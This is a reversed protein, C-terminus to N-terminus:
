QWLTVERVATRSLLPGSAGLRRVVPHDPEILALARAAEAALYPDEDDVALDALRPVAARSRLAALIRAALVQRDSLRHNLARVLQDEYSRLDDEVPAGCSPCHRRPTDIEEFCEACFWTM